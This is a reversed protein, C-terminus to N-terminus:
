KKVKIKKAGLNKTLEALVSVTEDNLQYRIGIVKVSIYDNEKTKRFEENNTHQERAIYITVPSENSDFIGRIGAKTSNEVLCRISMGVVPKCVSCEFNVQFSINSAILTGASYSVIQISDKKIYGETSCKGELNNKLEQLINQKMNNGIVNFPLIVKRHLLNKVYISNRKGKSKNTSEM